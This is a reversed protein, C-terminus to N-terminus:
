EFKVGCSVPRTLYCEYKKNDLIDKAKLISAANDYVAFVSPGSGSLSLCLPKTDCLLKKLESNDWLVEFSNALSGCVTKLGGDKLLQLFKDNDIVASNEAGDLKKYMDATSPKKGHKIILIQCDPLPACETLVEGIGRARKTGGGIFFPVDAGISVAINCLEQPNLGGNYLKNLSLLVAAADASGGGLGSATPINKAIDIKAGGFIGTKDFFLKAAKYATNDKERVDAGICNVSIDSHKVVTIEDALSVSQMVTDVTHYGDDRKGTIGLTLNIKAYALSHLENM